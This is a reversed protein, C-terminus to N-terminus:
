QLGQKVAVLGHGPVFEFGASKLADCVAAGAPSKGGQIIDRINGNIAEKLATPSLSKPNKIRAVAESFVQNLEKVEDFRHTFLADPNEAVSAQDLKKLAREADGSGQRLHKTRRNTMPDLLQRNHADLAREIQQERSLNPAGVPLPEDIDFGLPQRLEFQKEGTRIQKKKRESVDLEFKLDETELEAATGVKASAERLRELEKQMAAARRAAGKPNTQRMTQIADLRQKLGPYQDLLEKYEVYLLPCPKTSCLEIGQETVQVHHGGDVSEEALVQESKAAPTREGVTTAKAGDDDAGGAHPQPETKAPPAATPKPAEDAIGSTPKQPTSEAHSAKPPVAYPTEGHPVPKAAKASVPAAPANTHPVPKPLMKKGGEALNEGLGAIGKKAASTAVTAVEKEALGLVKRIFGKLKEMVGALPKMLPELVPGLPKLLKAVLADIVKEVDAIITGAAKVGEIVKEGFSGLWKGFKGLGAAAESVLNGLSGSFAILLAQITVWGVAYGTKDGIKSWPDDLLKDDTNGIEHSIRAMPSTIWSPAAEKPKTEKKWPAEASVAIEEGGKKGLEHALSEASSTLAEPLGLLKVIASKPDNKISIWFDRLPKAMQDFEAAIQQLENALAYSQRFISTVLTGAMNRMQEGFVLIGFLDTVPSIVGKVLGYGYGAVLRPIDSARFTKLNAWLQVLKRRRGFQKVLEEIMGSLAAAILRSSTSGPLHKVLQNVVLGIFGSNGAAERQIGTPASVKTTPAHGEAVTDGAIDAESEAAAESTGSGIGRSQQVIHTLEHGLLRTGERTSPAYRNNAFVIDHGATYAMAYISQASLDADSGTHVRVASFDHNFRAEMGRRTGMDLPQGPSALVDKVIPPLGDLTTDGAAKRQIHTKGAHCRSCSEGDEECTCKRQLQLPSADTAALMPSVSATQQSSLSM